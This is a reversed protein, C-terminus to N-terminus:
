NMQRPEDRVGTAADDGEQVQRTHVCKVEGRSVGSLKM